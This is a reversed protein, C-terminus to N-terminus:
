VAQTTLRRAGKLLQEEKKGPLFRPLKALERSYHISFFMSPESTVSCTTQPWINSVLPKLMMTPM